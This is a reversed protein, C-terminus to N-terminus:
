ITDLSILSHSNTTFQYPSALFCEYGIEIRQGPIVVSSFWSFGRSTYQTAVFLRSGHVEEHSM